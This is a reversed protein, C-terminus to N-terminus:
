GLLGSFLSAGVNLFKLINLLPSEGFFKVVVSGTYITSGAFFFKMLSGAVFLVCFAVILGLTAGLIKNLRDLLKVHEAVRTLFKALLWLGVLAVVFVVVYGIINSFLSSIPTAIADAMSGVLEEGSGEAAALKERVEDTMLFGPLASAAEEANFNGLTESYVAYLKDYVFNRVPSALWTESIFAGLRSGLFYAAVFALLTKFFHIVSKLFGRLTFIVVILVGVAVFILDAILNGM